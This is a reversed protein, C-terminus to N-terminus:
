AEVMHKAQQLLKFTEEDGTDANDPHYRRAAERYGGHDALWRLAQERSVFEQSSQAIQRYGVYQEGRQSIGYREVKRLAELGLAVARLNAQWTGFRCTAYRLPGHESKFSVGVAPSMPRTNARPYGDLRLDVDRYDLEIVVQEAHLASLETALLKITKAAPASFLTPAGEPVPKLTSFPRVVADLKWLLDSLQSM